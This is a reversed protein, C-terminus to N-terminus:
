FWDLLVIMALLIVCLFSCLFHLCRSVERGIGRRLLPPSDKRNLDPAQEFTFATFRSTIPTKSLLSCRTWPFRSHGTSQTLSPSQTKSQPKHKATVSTTTYKHHTALPSPRISTVATTLSSWLARWLSWWDNNQLMSKGFLSYAIALAVISLTPVPSLVRTLSNAPPMVSQELSLSIGLSMQRPRKSPNSNRVTTWSKQFDKSSSAVVVVPAAKSHSWLSRGAGCIAFGACRQQVYLSVICLLWLSNLMTESPFSPCSVVFLLYLCLVKTAFDKKHSERPEV